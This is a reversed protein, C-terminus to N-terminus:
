YFFGTFQKFKLSSNERDYKGDKYFILGEKEAVSKFRTTRLLTTFIKVIKKDWQKINPDELINLAEEVFFARRYARNSTMADFTDAISIIRSGLPIDEGSVGMVYGTGNYTEHHFCALKRAADLHSLNKLIDNTMVVHQQIEKREDESLAGPKKLISDSVGIKGIDHLIAATKILEIEEDPLKLEQAILGSYLKVREVHGATYKDRVELAVNLSHIFEMLLMREKEWLGAVNIATALLQSMHELEKLEGTQYYFREKSALHVNAVARDHIVLVYNMWCGHELKESIEMRDPVEESTDSYIQSKKTVIAHRISEMLVGSEVLMLWDEDRYGKTIRLKVANEETLAMHNIDFDERIIALDARDAGFVDVIVDLIKPAVKKLDLHPLNIEGIIKKYGEKVKEPDINLINLGKVRNSM